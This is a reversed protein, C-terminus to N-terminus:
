SRGGDLSACVAVVVVVVVLLSIALAVVARKWYLREVEGEGVPPYLRFISKGGDVAKAKAIAIENGGHQVELDAQM